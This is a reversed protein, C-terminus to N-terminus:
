QDGGGEGGGTGPDVEVSVSGVTINSINGAATASISTVPNDLRGLNSYNSLTQKNVYALATNNAYAFQVLDAVLVADDASAADLEINHNNAISTASVDIAANVIVNAGAEASLEAPTLLGALALSLGTDALATHSNEGELWADMEPGEPGQDTAGEGTAVNFVFQGEHLYTALNSTVSESNGLALASLEVTPLHRRADIPDVVVFEATGAVALEVDGSAVGEVVLPVESGNVGDVQEGVGETVSTGDPNGAIGVFGTDANPNGTSHEIDIFGEATGEVVLEVPGSATGIFELEHTTFSEPQNNVFRDLYADATKDGISIQLKEVQVLGSPDFVSGIFIDIDVDEDITKDWNWDVSDFASAQSMALGLALASVSGYLALKKMKLM